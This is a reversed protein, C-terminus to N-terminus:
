RDDEPPQPIVTRDGDFGVLHLEARMWRGTREYVRRRVTDILRAVDAASAGVEAQVFNAHKDSVVAGGVRAGKLGCEDIIRGAPEGDPNVFVSGCNQGGPQNARRWRVVAEIEARAEGPDGPNARFSARVVVDRDSVASSRFEFGLADGNRLAAQPEGLRLIEADILVDATDSGHGGANMRVAGGVSGPIGVFFELGRLGGAASQRALVPLPTAGGATVVGGRGDIEIREFADGLRVAVGPFGSDAVLVNSGRGIVLVEGRYGALCKSVALLQQEDGIEVLVALPGGVRYTTLPASPAAREIRAERELARLLAGTVARGPGVGRPAVRNM